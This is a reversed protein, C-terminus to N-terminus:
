ASKKDSTRVYKWDTRLKHEHNIEGNIIDTELLSLEDPRLDAELVSTIRINQATSTGCPASSFLRIRTPSGKGIHDPEFGYCKTFIWKLRKMAREFSAFDISRTPSYSRDILLTITKPILSKIRFFPNGDM